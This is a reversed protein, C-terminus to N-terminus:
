VDVTDNGLRHGEGVARGDSQGGCNLGVKFAVEGVVQLREGLYRTRRQRM